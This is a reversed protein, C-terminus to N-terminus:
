CASIHKEVPYLPMIIAAFRGEVGEIVDSDEQARGLDHDYRQEHIYCVRASRLRCHLLWYSKRGYKHFPSAAGLQCM